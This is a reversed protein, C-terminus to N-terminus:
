IPIITLIYHKCLVCTVLVTILYSLESLIFAYFVAHNRYYIQTNIVLSNGSELVIILGLVIIILAILVSRACM